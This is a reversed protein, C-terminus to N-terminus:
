TRLGKSLLHWKARFKRIATFLRDARRDAFTRYGSVVWYRLFRSNGYLRWLLEIKQKFFPHPKKISYKPAALEAIVLINHIMPHREIIKLGALDLLTELTRATFAFTHAYQYISKRAIARKCNEDSYVDSGFVPRHLNPVEIMVKGNLALLRRLQLVTKVPDTVHELTHIMTVLEFKHWLNEPVQDLSPYAAHLHRLSWERWEGYEVGVAIETGGENRFFGGLAGSSSGVDLLSKPAEGMTDQWFEFLVRARFLEINFDNDPPTKNGRRYMVKYYERLTEDTPMNWQFIIGCEPCMEYHIYGLTQADDKHYRLVRMFHNDDIITFGHECVPCVTLINTDWKM